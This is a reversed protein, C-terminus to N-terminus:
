GFRARISHYRPPTIFPGGPGFTKSHALETASKAPAQPRFWLPASGGCELVRARPHCLNGISKYEM